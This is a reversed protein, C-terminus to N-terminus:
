LYYTKEERKIFLFINSFLFKPGSKIHTTELEIDTQDFVRLPKFSRGHCIINWINCLVIHRTDLYFNRCIIIESIRSRQSENLLLVSVM